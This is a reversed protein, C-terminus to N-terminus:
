NVVEINEREYVPVEGDTLEALKAELAEVRKLTVDVEGTQAAALMRKVVYPSTVEAIKKEFTKHHAGVLELLDEDTMANPNAVIAQASESTAPIRVPSLTGNTFPNRKDDAVRDENMQREAETLQIRRGANVLIEQTKGGADVKRLVIRGNAQWTELEDAM